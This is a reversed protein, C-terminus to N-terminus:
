RVWTTPLGPQPRGFGFTEVINSSQVSPPFNRSLKCGIESLNVGVALRDGGLFGLADDGVSQSGATGGITGM